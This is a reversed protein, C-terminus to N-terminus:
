KVVITEVVDAGCVLAEIGDSRYQAVHNCLKDLLLRGPEKLMNNPAEQPLNQGPQCHRSQQIRVSLFLSLSLARARSARRCHRGSGRRSAVKEDTRRSSAAVLRQRAWSRIFRESLTTSGV